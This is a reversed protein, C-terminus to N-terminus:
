AYIQSIGNIRCGPYRAVAFERAQPINNAEIIIREMFGNGSISVRFQKFAM